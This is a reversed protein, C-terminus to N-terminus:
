KIRAKLDTAHNCVRTLEICARQSIYVGYSARCPIAGGLFPFNAKDFDECEDYKQLFLDM